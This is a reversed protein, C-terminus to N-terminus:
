YISYPIYPKMKTARLTGYMAPDSRYRQIFCGNNLACETCHLFVGYACEICKEWTFYVQKLVIYHHFLLKFSKYISCPTYKVNQNCTSQKVHCFRQSKTPYFVRSEVRMRHLTPVCRICVTHVKGM